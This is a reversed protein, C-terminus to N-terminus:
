RTAKTIAHWDNELYVQAKGGHLHVDAQHERAAELLWGFEELDERTPIKLFGREKRDVAMRYRRRGTLEQGRCMRGLEGHGGCCTSVWDGCAKCRRECDVHVMPQPPARLFERLSQKM